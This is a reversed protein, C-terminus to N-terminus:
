GFRVALRSLSGFDFGEIPFAVPASGAAGAAVLLPTFHEDTPHALAFGPARERYALLGDTDGRTLRERVFSEFDTAWQPAGGGGDWALRALNHVMGGSALILVGQDRLPALASGFEFLQVPSWAQPLSVQLIPVDATPFLHMLPVWVGHDWGRDDDRRLGPIQRELEDALAAAAPAQYRIRYLEPPFGHFDYLLDRPQRAGLAPPADTWHASVVLVAGPRPLAAGLARFDAAAVPDLAWTPAGHSVFLVPQRDSVPFAEASPRTM